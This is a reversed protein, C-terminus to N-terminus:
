KLLKEIKDAIMSPTFGFDKLLDNKSGSKGFTDITFLHNETTAYKHWSYSSSAELVFVPNKTNIVSDKYETSQREFLEISPMSVVQLIIGRELLLKHVEMAIDIEEGTSILTANTKKMEDTVAYAGYKVDSSSTLEQIKVKNRGLIIASPKRNELIANYSGIVENADAPRYVDLNPISRLSVLQEIPQHTPGDEGVTISDHSFVYIVPLEMLASMRIAPKLYDSFTFFTSVFPTIGITALGNAISGMAHERVGFYINKGSYNSKNLEDGDKIKAFTSSTLDAAGGIFFPYCNAISTIIQGSALRPSDTGDVPLEYYIDKLKLPEKSDILLELEKKKEESLKEVENNWNGVLPINRYNILEQFSTLAESSVAFPMEWLELKEKIALLDEETLPSGHVKATGQNKSYKGITTKVEIITPKNNSKAKTIADSINSTNEGDSVLIYDWNQSEFRMKIDEKFSLDLPGDLSIDNSDYLVILKNLGLKGALSSAEYSVGEMIDGDGCLVYTYYDIIEKGFYSNLYREGIAVGVASAIGQGLPGTTMDVGPTVGYEPHGPTISDMKRFDKLDDLKIDFGAMYLTAYLLASGHGASMIFRDRNIWNDNLTDFKLFNAYVSSIIPAAGLVIGPHGSNAENIMDLALGRINDVIKKDISNDEKKMMLM